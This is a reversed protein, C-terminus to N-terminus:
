SKVLEESPKLPSELVKILSALKGKCELVDYLISGVEVAIDSRRDDSDSDETNNLISNLCKGAYRLEKATEKLVTRELLTMENGGQTSASAGTLNDLKLFKEVPVISTINIFEALAVGTRRTVFFNKGRAM